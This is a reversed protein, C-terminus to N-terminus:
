LDQCTPRWVEGSGRLRVPGYAVGVPRLLLWREGDGSFREMSLSRLMECILGASVGMDREGGEFEPQRHPPLLDYLDCKRSGKSKKGCEVIVVPSGKGKVELLSRKEGKSVLKIM